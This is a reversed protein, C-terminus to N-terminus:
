RAGALKGPESVGERVCHGVPGSAVREEYRRGEDLASQLFTTRAGDRLMFSERRFLLYFMRLADEDGAGLVSGLDVEFYGTARPRARSYYLRWVGGSTLMGWRVRGDSEIEATSLYRLMQGHPTRSARLREGDRADLPLGFRKSEGVAVGDPYRQEASAKAVAREKSDADPFLLLDPIEENGVTGQQPLYDAWGLLELVPWILDRETVAENPESYGSVSEYRERVGDRFAEFEGPAAVSLLWESTVRIGGLLFYDTFLRGQLKTGLGRSLEM